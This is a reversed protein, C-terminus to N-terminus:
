KVKSLADQAADIFGQSSYSAGSVLDLKSPDSTEELKAKLIDLAPNAIAETDSHTAKVDYVKINGNSDKKAAVEVIVLDAFGDGEGRYVKPANIKEVVMAALGAVIFAIVCIKRVKEINLDREEM